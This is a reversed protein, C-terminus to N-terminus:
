SPRRGRWEVPRAMSAPFPRLFRKLEQNNCLPEQCRELGGAQSRAAAFDGVRRVGIVVADAPGEGLDQRALSGPTLNRLPTGGSSEEDARLFPLDQREPSTPM